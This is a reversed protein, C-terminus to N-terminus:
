DAPYGLSEAIKDTVADISAVAMSVSQKDTVKEKLAKPLKSVLAKAVQEEVEPSQIHKVVIDFVYKFIFKKYKKLIRRM